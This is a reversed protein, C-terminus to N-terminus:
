KSQRAWTCVYVIFLLLLSTSNKEDQTNKKEFITINLKFFFGSQLPNLKHKQTKLSKRGMKRM